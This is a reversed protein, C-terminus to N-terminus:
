FKRKKRSGNSGAQLDQRLQERKRDARERSTERRARKQKGQELGVAEIDNTAAGEDCVDDSPAQNQDNSLAAPTQYPGKRGGIKGLKVKPLKAVELVINEAGSESRPSHQDNPVIPDDIEVKKHSDNQQHSVGSGKHQAATVDSRGNSQTGM